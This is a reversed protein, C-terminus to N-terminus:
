TVYKGHLMKILSSDPGVGTGLVQSDPVKVVGDEGSSGGCICVGSSSVGGKMEGGSKWWWTVM